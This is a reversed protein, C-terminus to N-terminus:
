GEDYVVKGRWGAKVLREYFVTVLEDRNCVIRVEEIDPTLRDM